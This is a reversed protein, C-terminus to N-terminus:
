KILEMNMESIVKSELARYLRTDLEQADTIERKECDWKKGNTISYKLYGQPVYQTAARVIGGMVEILKDQFNLHNKNTHSTMQSKRELLVDIRITSEEDSMLIELNEM